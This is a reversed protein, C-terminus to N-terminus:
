AGSFGHMGDRHRVTNQVKERRYGMLLILKIQGEGPVAPVPAHLCAAADAGAQGLFLDGLPFGLM